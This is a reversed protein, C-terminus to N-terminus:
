IYLVAGKSETVQPYSSHIEKYISNKENDIDSYYSRIYLNGVDYEGNYGPDATIEANTLGGELVLVPFKPALYNNQRKNFINIIKSLSSHLLITVVGEEKYEDLKAIYQDLDTTDDITKNHVEFVVKGNYFKILHVIREYYFPTVELTNDLLIAYNLPYQTALVYM